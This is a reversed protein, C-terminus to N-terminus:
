LDIRMQGTRWVPVAPPNLDLRLLGIRLTPIAAGLALGAVRHLGDRRKSYIVLPRNAGSLITRSPMTPLGPIM